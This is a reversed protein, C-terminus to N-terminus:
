GVNTFASFSSQIALSNFFFAGDFLVPAATTFVGPTFGGDVTSISRRGSRGRTGSFHGAVITGGGAFPPM